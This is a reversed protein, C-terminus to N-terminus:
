GGANVHRHFELPAAVNAVPELGAGVGRIILTGYDLIRGLVDQNVLVSEVKDVNMEISRRGILGTKVIIRRSTVIIETSLRKLWATLLQYGGVLFLILSLGLGATRLDPPAKVAALISLLTSIVTLAIGPAMM